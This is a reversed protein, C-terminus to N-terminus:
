FKAGIEVSVVHEDFDVDPLNSRNDNYEIRPRVFWHGSLPVDLGIELAYRDDQRREVLPLLPEDYDRSEQQLGAELEVVRSGWAFRRGYRARLRAGDYDFADDAADEDLDHYGFVLYRAIGDIFVFVDASAAQSTADRSANAEFEKDSRVYALRVLLRKGFRHSVHPSLRKLVLFGEGGLAADAHHYTVGADTRGFDYSLGGSGRHIRLDFADFEEHLTESFDYNLQLTLKDFLTKDFGIGADILGAVDGEGSATDLDLVAVNSDYAAGASFTFSFPGTADEAAALGPSSLALVVAFTLPRLARTSM